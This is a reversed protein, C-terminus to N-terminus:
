LKGVMAAAFVKAAAEKSFEIPNGGASPDVAAM